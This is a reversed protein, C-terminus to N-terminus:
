LGLRARRAQEMFQRMEPSGSLLGLDETSASPGARSTKTDQWFREEDSQAGRLPAASTMRRPMRVPASSTPTDLSPTPIPASTPPTAAAAAITTASRARSASWSSPPAAAARSPTARSVSGSPRSVSASSLSATSGQFAPLKYPSTVPVHLDRQSVSRSLSPLSPALSTFSRARSWTAPQVADDEWDRSGDDEVGQEQDVTTDDM